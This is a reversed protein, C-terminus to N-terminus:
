CDNRPMFKKPSIEQFHFHRVTGRRLFVHYHSLAEVNKPDNLYQSTLPLSNIISVVEHWFALLSSLNVRGTRTCNTFRSMCVIPNFSEKVVTTHVAAKVEPERPLIEEPQPEYWGVDRRFTALLVKKARFVVPVLFGNYIGEKYNLVPGKAREESDKHCPHQAVLNEPNKGPTHACNEGFM